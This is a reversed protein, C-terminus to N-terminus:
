KGEERERQGGDDRWTTSDATMGAGRALTQCRMLHAPGERHIEVSLVAASSGHREHLSGVKVHHDATSDDEMPANERREESQEEQRQDRPKEVSELVELSVRMEVQFNLSPVESETLCSSNEAILCKM